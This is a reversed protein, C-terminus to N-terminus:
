FLLKVGVNASDYSQSDDSFRGTYAAFVSIRANIRANVGAEVSGWSDAPAYGPMDFTGPLTVLGATVSRRHADGDYDYAVQVFPSLTVYPARVTAQARAGVEGVLAERTQEAFTMATSDAGDEAYGDIRVREYHASVYPSVKLSQYLNDFGFWWGATLNATIDSGSADAREARTAVDGLAFQRQINRVDIGGYGATGNLYGAGRYLYQGFVTGLVEQTRFKFADSGFHAFSDGFTLAAGATIEPSVRYDFGVTASGGDNDLRSTYADRDFRQSQYDFSAFARTRTTPDAGDLAMEDQLRTRQAYSFALPAEALLSVYAPATLEAVIAASVARDAGTSPHVGDAFLYSLNSGPAILTNQTCTLSSATTCAPTVINVFGFAAPNAKTEAFLLNANVPVIGTGITTLGGTLVQNFANTLSTFAAAAGPAVKDTAQASPTGGIDPLNFVVVHKAGAAHLQGILTVEQAAAATVNTGAQDATEVSAVGVQAAAGANIQAVVAARVAPPLNAPLAAIAQAAGAGALAAAGHYFIDNAGAWVTYLRNADLTPNAALYGTIQTTVTPVGAATGPSNTTVGSGGYAYDSGGILSPALPLGFRAALNEVVVNGPNTTFKQFSTTGTLNPLGSALAIDGDDSLSDGFVTIGTFPSARVAGVPLATNLPPTAQANASSALALAALATGAVITVRTM